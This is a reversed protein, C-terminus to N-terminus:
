PQETDILWSDGDRVFTLTKTETSDDGDKPKFTLEITATNKAADADVSGVDVSEIGSWFTEYGERGDPSSQM